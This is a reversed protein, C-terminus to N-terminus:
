SKDGETVDVIYHRNLIHAKKSTDILVIFDKSNNLFDSLRLDGSVNLLGQLVSGDHLTVAVRQRRQKKIGSMSMPATSNVRALRDLDVDTEEDFSDVIDNDQPNM